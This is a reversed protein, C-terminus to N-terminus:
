AQKHFDGFKQERESRFMEIENTLAQNAIILENFKEQFLQSQKELDRTALAAKKSLSKNEEELRKNKSSIENQLANHSDYMEKIQNKYKNEINKAITSQNM